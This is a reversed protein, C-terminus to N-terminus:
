AVSCFFGEGTWEQFWPQLSGMFQELDLEPLAACTELAEGLTKGAQLETLLTYQERDLRKRWVTFEQRWVTMWDTQPTPLDMHREERVATIYGNVPHDLQFLRLAPIIEFRVSPWSEQPIALLADVSVPERQPADFVDEMAREVRALDAVVGQHPVDEAEEALFAPFKKSLDCLTWSTSPHVSVYAKCLEAFRDPGVVHRVTPYEEAIIDILRWFYSDAYVEIREASSMAKSPRVVADIDEESAGARM